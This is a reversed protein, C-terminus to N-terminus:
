NGVMMEEWRYVEIEKKSLNELLEWQKCRVSRLGIWDAPGDQQFEASAHVFVLDLERIQDSIRVCVVM